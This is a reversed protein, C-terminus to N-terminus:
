QALDKSMETPVGVVIAPDFPNDPRAGINLLDPRGYKEAIRRALARVSIGKGSCINVPGTVDGLAAAVVRRAGEGVELFDRIQHGHSLDVPLGRSLRDHLQAVLRNPHEGEGYLHFLRCWALATSTSPLTSSLALYTAAKAGAYPSQPDLPSAIDLPTDRMGYEFCTGIGTFKAAGSAIAGEALAITGALCRLNAPDDIYQGPTATWALHIIHASKTFIGAWWEPTKTFLDDVEVISTVGVPLREASGRRLIATVKHGDAVLRRCVHRGVFGTAGTIFVTIM